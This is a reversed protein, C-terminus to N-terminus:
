RDDVGAVRLLADSLGAFEEPELTEARRTLDIGSMAAAESLEADTLYRGGEQSDERPLPPLSRLANRLMKRRQSFAARVVSDFVAVNRIEFRREASFSLEVVAADVAPQPRFAKRPIDFCIRGQARTRLLVTILGYRKSGPIAVVREAVEKQLTLVARDIRSAHELLRFLAPSTINFPLNGVVVLRDKREEELLAEFDLDLFDGEIVRLPPQEFRGRLLRVLDRDIEIAVLHSLRTLLEVTLAGRGPGVELVLDGEAATAALEAVQALASADTLFHQGFRKRARHRVAASGTSHKDM